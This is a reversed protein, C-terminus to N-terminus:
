GGLAEDLRQLFEELRKRPVWAAASVDHGGGFGDVAKAAERIARGVNVGRVALSPTGRASIKLKEPGSDSIGVVPLDAALLSSEFTLSLAEGIFAPDIERGVYIYRMNTATRFSGLNRALWDLAKLMQCQYQKLLELAQSQLAPDGLLAGFGVEPHKLKGCAELMTVLGRAERLGAREPLFYLPGWLAHLFDENRSADGAKALLNRKLEEEAERGLQSLKLNEDIGVEALLRKCGEESLSLGPIFPRPSLRLCELLPYLERGVLRLGEGLEVQGLDVAQKLYLENAGTFGSFFEQRDGIAGLLVLWLLSRFERDIREVVAYVVGTASLDKAGNLGHAHPNLHFLNPHEPFPGPHHDLILVKQHSLHRQIFPIQSAGQDVFVVLDFNLPALEEVRREDLPSTLKLQFPTDYARLCSALIAAAAIGDADHHALM